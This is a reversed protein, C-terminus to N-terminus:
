APTQNSSTITALAQSRMMRKWSPDSDLGLESATKLIEQVYRTFGSRRAISIGEKLARIAEQHRGDRASAEGIRRYEFARRFSDAPRDNLCAKFLRQAERYQGNRLAVVGLQHQASTRHDSSPANNAIERLVSEADQIENVALLLVGTQYRAWYLLNLDVPKEELLEKELQRLLKLGDRPRNGHEYIAALRILAAPRQKAHPTVAAVAQCVTAASDFEGSMDLLVALGYMLESASARLDQQNISLVASSVGTFGFMGIESQLGFSRDLIIVEAPVDLVVAVDKITRRFAPKGLELQQWTRSSYGARHAAEEVTLGQAERLARILIGNVPLTRQNM